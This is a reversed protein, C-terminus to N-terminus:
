VGEKLVKYNYYLEEGVQYKTALMVSNDTPYM